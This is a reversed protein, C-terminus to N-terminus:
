SSARISLSRPWATIKSAAKPFKAGYAASFAKVAALAHPKEEADWIQALAKKAGPHASKPLAARCVWAPETPPHGTLRRYQPKVGRLASPCAHRGGTAAGSVLGVSRTLSRTATASIANALTRVLKRRVDSIWRIIM